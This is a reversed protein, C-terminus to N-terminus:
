PASPEQAAEGGPAIGVADGTPRDLHERAWRPVVFLGECRATVEGDAAYLEGAVTIKWGDRAVVRAKATLTGLWTPREYTTNLYATLGPMGLCAPVTGLVQDLLAAIIGGHVCGPPGEYAAGLVIESSATTGDWEVHVPPAVPNRAGAMANGHDRLRGDSCTELGLPEDQADALLRATLADVEAAVADIESIAVRTRVSADVLGRISQALAAYAREEAALTAVDEVPFPSEFTGATM